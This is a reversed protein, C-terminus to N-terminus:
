LDDDTPADWDRYTYGRPRRGRGGYGGGRGRMSMGMSPYVAYPPYMPPVYGRFSGRGGYGGGRGRMSMGMSPYVAYPPYM